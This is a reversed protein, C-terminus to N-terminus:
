TDDDSEGTKTMSFLRAMLNWRFPDEIASAPLPGRIDKAIVIDLAEKSLGGTKTWRVGQTGM